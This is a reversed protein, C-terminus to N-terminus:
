LEEPEGLTELIEIVAALRDKPFPRLDNVLPEDNSVWAHAERLEEETAGTAVLEAALADDVPGLVRAIAEKTLPSM